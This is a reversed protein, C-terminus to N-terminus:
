CPHQRFSPFVLFPMLLRCRRTEGNECVIICSYFFIYAISVHTLYLKFQLRCAHVLVKEDDEEITSSGTRCQVCARVCSFEFWTSGLIAWSPLSPSQSVSEERETKMVERGPSQQWNPVIFFHSLILSIWLSLSSTRVVYPVKRFSSM